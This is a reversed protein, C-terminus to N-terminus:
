TPCSMIGCLIVYRVTQFKQVLSYRNKHILPFDNCQLSNHECFKMKVFHFNRAFNALIIHSLFKLCYAVSM